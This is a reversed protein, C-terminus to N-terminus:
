IQSPNLRVSALMYCSWCCRFISCLGKSTLQYLCRQLERDHTFLWDLCKHLCSSDQEFLVSGCYYKMWTVLSLWRIIMNKTPFRTVHDLICNWALNFPFHTCTIAHPLIVCIDSLYSMIIIRRTSAKHMLTCAYVCENVLDAHDPSWLLAVWKVEETRGPHRAIM